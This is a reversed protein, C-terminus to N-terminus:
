RRTPAPERVDTVERIDIEGAAAMIGNAVDPWPLLGGAEVHPPEKFWAPVHEVLASALSNVDPATLVGKSAPISDRLGPIDYGIAPTGVAAAESVVLGWGERVSTVILAQARAMREFKEAEDVRGFFQVGGPASRELEARMPGDGIVWMRAEPYQERLKTFAAIAHDPRKNTSLRGCFVVTPVRAKVRSHATEPLSMGEAVVSVDDIGHERLSEATSESVAVVRAHKCKWVWYPELVYHGFAALPWPFEHFWIERALQHVLMVVPTDDVYRHVHFPRTNAEDVILDFRGRAERKFFRTAHWYVSYRSGRRVINVGDIVDNSPLTPHGACFLTVEHGAAIWAKAVEHTYVEAGGSNPHSIDRWNFIM